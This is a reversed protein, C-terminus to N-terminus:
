GDEGRREIGASRAGQVRRILRDPDHVLSLLEATAKGIQRGTGDPVSDRHLSKLVETLEAEVEANRAISAWTPDIDLGVYRGSQASGSVHGGSSTAAVPRDTVELRASIEDVEALVADGLRLVDQATLPSEDENGRPPSPPNRRVDEAHRLLADITAANAATLVSMDLARPDVKSKWDAALEVQLIAGEASVVVTVVRDPDRGTPGSPEPEDEQAQAPSEGDDWLNIEAEFAWEEDDPM